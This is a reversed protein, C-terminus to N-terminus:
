RGGEKRLMMMKLRMEAEGKAHGDWAGAYEPWLRWLDAKKIHWSVQGTPLDVFPVPWKDGAEPDHGLGVRYGLRDAMAAVVQALQNRERYAADRRGDEMGRRDLLVVLWALAAFSVLVLGYFSGHYGALAYGAVLGLLFLFEIASM